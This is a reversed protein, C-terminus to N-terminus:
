CTGHDDGSTPLSSIVSLAWAKTRATDDDSLAGQDGPTATPLADIQATLDALTQKMVAERAGRVRSPLLFPVGALNQVTM